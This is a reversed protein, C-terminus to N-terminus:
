AVLDLGLPPPPRVRHATSTFYKSIERLYQFDSYFYCYIQRIIVIPLSIEIKM